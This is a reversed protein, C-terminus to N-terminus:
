FAKIEKLLESLLKDEPVTKLIKGKKFIVGSKKGGAIGIDAEKAEGPGNVICGMVAVTIPKDIATIKSEVLNALKILDIETRGCTPCSILTAGKQRLGLSKLIEWAVRVEEEPDATLSVRVTDGISEYLLIGLGVSSKIIGSKPTGAETIGLHLPYNVRKSLLRYAEVTRLVDSAKLSIVINRFNLEELIKINKLASAVMAKPTRGYKKEAEPELSGINVGIRIPVRRKKCEKVVEKVKWQEGINGPNIRIKDAGSKLAELALKYDFHIDAVIPISVKPKIKAISKAAKEDPVALRVIECGAKELRKIQQITSKPDRTDTNAMSQVAVPNNGGITVNGIKVVKTQNKKIKTM